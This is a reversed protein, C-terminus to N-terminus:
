EIRTLIESLYKESEEKSIDMKSVVTKNPRAKEKAGRLYLKYEYDLQGIDIARYGNLYLDRVLQKAAPGLSVLFM